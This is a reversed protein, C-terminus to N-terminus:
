WCIQVQVLVQQALLNWIHMGCRKMSEVWKGFLIEAYLECLFYYSSINPWPHTLNSHVNETLGSLPESFSKGESLDPCLVVHWQLWKRFVTSHDTTYCWWIVWPNASMQTIIFNSYLEHFKIKYLLNDYKFSFPMIQNWLNSYITRQKIRM